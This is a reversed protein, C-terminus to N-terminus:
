LVDNLGGTYDNTRAILSDFHAILGKQQFVSKFGERVCIFLYIKIEFM